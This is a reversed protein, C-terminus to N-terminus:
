GFCASLSSIIYLANISEYRVANSMVDTCYMGKM